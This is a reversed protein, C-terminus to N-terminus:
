LVVGEGYPNPLQAGVDRIYEDLARPLLEWALDILCSAQDSWGNLDSGEVRATHGEEVSVAHGNVMLSGEKIFKGFRYTLLHCTDVHVEVLLDYRSRASNPRRTVLKIGDMSYAIFEDINIFEDVLMDLRARSTQKLADIAADDGVFSSIAWDLNGMRRYVICPNSDIVGDVLKTHYIPLQPTDRDDDLRNNVPTRLHLANTNGLWGVKSINLLM